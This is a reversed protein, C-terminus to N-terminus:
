RLDEYFDNLRVNINKFIFELKERYICFKLKVINKLLQYSVDSDRPVNELLFTNLPFDLTGMTVIALTIM